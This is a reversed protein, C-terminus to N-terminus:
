TKWLGEELPFDDPNRVLSNTTHLTLGADTLVKRGKSFLGHTVALHLKMNPFLKKAEDAIGIFTAGGDCIDDIILGVTKQDPPVNSTKEVVEVDLIKGTAQDRKKNFVIIPYDDIYQYRKKAGADPFIVFDPDVASTVDTHFGIPEINVFHDIKEKTFAVNHVDVALVEKFQMRNILAAFPRLAFTQENSIEKDQRAYPMYPIVLRVGGKNLCSLQAVHMLEGEHEFKWVIDGGKLEGPVKWVQSTGDPFMLPAIKQGNWILM